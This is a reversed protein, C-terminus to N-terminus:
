FFFFSFRFFITSLPTIDMSIQSILFQLQSVKFCLVVCFCMGNAMLAILACTVDIRSFEVTCEHSFSPAFPLECRVTVTFVLPVGIGGSFTELAKWSDGSRLRLVVNGSFSEDMQGLISMAANSSTTLFQFNELYVDILCHM